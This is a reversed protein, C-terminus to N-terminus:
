LHSFVFTNIWGENRLVRRYLDWMCYLHFVFFPPRFHYLIVCLCSSSNINTVFVICTFTAALILFVPPLTYIDLINLLFVFFSENQLAKFIYKHLYTKTGSIKNPRNQLQRRVGWLITTHTFELRTSRTQLLLLVYCCIGHSGSRVQLLLHEIAAVAMTRFATIKPTVGLPLASCFRRLSRSFSISASSRSLFLSFSSSSSILCLSNSSPCGSGSASSRLTLQETVVHILTNTQVHPILPHATQQRQSPWKIKRTKWCRYRLLTWSENDTSRRKKTFCLSQTIM